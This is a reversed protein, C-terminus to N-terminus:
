SGWVDTINYEAFIKEITAAESVKPEVNGNLRLRWGGRSDIGLANMIKKRVAPVDKQQV